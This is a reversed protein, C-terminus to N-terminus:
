RVDCPQEKTLCHRLAILSEDMAATHALEKLEQLSQETHMRQGGKRVRLAVVM